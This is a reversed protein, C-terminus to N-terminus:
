KKKKRNKKKSLKEKEEAKEEAKEEVTEASAEDKEEVEEVKEEAKAEVSDAKEEAKEAAEEIAEESAVTEKVETESEEVKETAEEATAVAATEDKEKKVFFSSVLGVLTGAGYTGHLILFLGPLLLDSPYFKKRGVIGTVTMVIALTWYLFWMLLGLWPFHLLTLIFTLLIALLFAAPVFHYIELCKPCIRLTRGIWFGNSFKQRIMASFSGRANQESHIEPDFCIQYGAERVRYHYENDETRLLDENFKGVKEVVEKRYAAHFVSNVYKRGSERRYPAISSGFMSTEALLLTEKWPTSEALNSGRPGGTVMEGEEHLAVNKAVFDSPISAHGDIRILIDGTAHEFFINWGAAQTKKPNDYVFAGAFGREECMDAFVEMQIKTSDESMSDILILEMKEAPYNQIAIDGLIRDIAEEENRAVIGISVKMESM